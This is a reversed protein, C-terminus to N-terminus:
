KYRLLGQPAKLFCSWATKTEGSYIGFCLPFVHGCADVTTTILLVGKFSTKIHTGDLAIIPKTYPFGAISAALAIFCYDFVNETVNMFAVTGPNKKQLEFIYPEMYKYSSALSGLFLEQAKKCARGISSESIQEDCDKYIKSPSLKKEDRLLDRLMRALIDEPVRQKPIANCSSSHKNFVSVTFPSTSSVSTAHLHFDCSVDTCRFTLRKANSQTCFVEKDTKIAYVHVFTKSDLQNNGITQDVAIAINGPLYNNALNSLNDKM